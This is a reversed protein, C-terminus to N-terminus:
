PVQVRRGETLIKMGTPALLVVDRETLGEQVEANARGRLGLTVAKWHAMGDQVVFVGEQEDRRSVVTLPITLVDDRRDTEIYVEARQGVAWNAPLPSVQVDVVFERTERDAQKGLRIVVGPYSQDPQSRFLIRAPQNAALKSMETEDVWASIWLVETSILTL